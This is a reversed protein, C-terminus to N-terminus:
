PHWEGGFSPPGHDRDPDVEGLMNVTVLNYSVLYRSNYAVLSGFHFPRHPDGRLSQVYVCLQPFPSFNEMLVETLLKGDCTSMVRVVDEQCSGSVVYDSCNMFYSRTYNHDSGTPQVQFELLEDGQFSYQRVENDIASSVLYRDDDSFAVMLVGSRSSRSWIPRDCSERLDWMKTTKDFSSTAFIHPSYNSFKLVNIHQEHLKPLHRLKSGNRLDYLSVDESYGSTLFFDDTSNINLSTLDGFPPYEYVISHSPEEVMMQSNLMIVSGNAAGVVFMRPDSKMWSLALIPHVESRMRTSALMKGQVHDMLVVKGELTGFVMRDHLVPHYEFQRPYLIDETCLHRTISCCQTSNLRQALIKRERPGQCTYQHSAELLLGRRQAQKNSSLVRVCGPPLSYRFVALLLRTLRHDLGQDLHLIWVPPKSSDCSGDFIVGDSVEQVTLFGVDTRISVCM